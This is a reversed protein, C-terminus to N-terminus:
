KHYNSIHKRLGDRSRSTKGCINCPHSVGTIHIAEIHNRINIDLGEKGCVKCIGATRTRKGDTIADGLEMMSKIQDDLNDLDASVSGSLAVTRETYNEQYSSEHYSTEDEMKTSEDKVKQNPTRKSNTEHDPKQNGSLGKIRLEEAVALFSDLDEQLVNVEGHYLFDITAELSESKLGRMYILPHQHKNRRLIDLFLSSGSALIVKHAEVQKGDECVLTVDAFETDM